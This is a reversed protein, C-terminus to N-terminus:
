QEPEIKCAGCHICYPGGLPTEMHCNKCNELQKTGCFPCASIHPPLKKNCVICDGKMLRKQRVKQPNFVKKQIFYVLALGLIIAGLIVIYHWIAILHLAHLVKFLNKFFHNPILDLVVETLKLILPLSAIVLLHSSLLTQIRNDKKISRTSWAYFIFFIPLIFLLQWGLEKLPYSREFKRFDNVVLQRNQNEASIITWLKHVGPHANIKKETVAIKATLSEIQAAASKAQSSISSTGSTSHKKEALTELLRTDYLKKAKDFISAMDKRDKITRQRDVFLGHLEQDESILKVRRYFDRCLPHMNKTKEFEFISDYRYSYNNRDSLVLEQLKEIQSSPTWTQEIFVQRVTYPMYESPTTLQQTHDTLGQFLVTLIFIDLIIITTLSLKNLPEANGLTTLRKRFIKFKGKKM